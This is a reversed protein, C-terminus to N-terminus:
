GPYRVPLSQLFRRVEPQDPNIELSEQLLRRGEERDGVAGGGQLLILALNNRAVTTDPALEIARRFAAAAASFDGANALVTGSNVTITYSKPFRRRGEELVVIARQGEGKELYALAFDVVAQERERLGREAASWFFDEAEAYDGRKFLLLMLNYRPASYEPASAIAERYAKEAEAERGSELLSTALNNLRRAEVMGAEDSGGSIYGLARLKEEVARREEDPLEVVETDIAPVLARYSVAPLHSSRERIDDSLCWGPPDGAFAPDSPLGLLAFVTPLIDVPRVRGAGGPTVGRGAAIFVGETRHWWVATPTHPESAARPRGAGWHFGHDSVIILTTSDNIMGAYPALLQDIWRFYTEGVRSFSAFDADSVGPLRPPTFPAFLHGVTDTGEFYAMLLRPSDEAAIHRACRDVTITSALIRRLGGIPDEYGPKNLSEAWVEMPVDVFRRGMAYDIEEAEVRLHEVEPWREPPSVLGELSQKIPMLVDTVRDSVLLGTVAEAPWTAWWGVVGVPLGVATLMNWAAPVQRDFSGIPRTGGGRPDAAVFDLIGHDEPKVGTAMSTWIPPSIIPKPADLIGRAGGALIRALNPMAGRELLPDIFTWDAGDLGILVVKAVPEAATRIREAALERLLAEDLRPRAVAEQLRIGGDHFLPALAARLDLEPALEAGPFIEGWRPDRPALDSPSSGALAPGLHPELLEGWAAQWGLRRVAGAAVPLRGHGDLRLTVTATAHASPPGSVPTELVVLGDRRAIQLRESWLRPLWGMGGQVLSVGDTIHSIGVVATGDAPAVIGAAIWALAVVALAFLLRIKMTRGAVGRASRADAVM